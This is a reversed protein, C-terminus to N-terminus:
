FGWVECEDVKEVGICDLYPEGHPRYAGLEIVRLTIKKRGEGEQCGIEPKKLCDKAADKVGKVRDRLLERRQEKSPPVGGGTEGYESM